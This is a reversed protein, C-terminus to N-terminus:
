SCYEVIKRSISEPSVSAAVAFAELEMVISAESVSREKYNKIITRIQGQSLAEMVFDKLSEKDFMPKLYNDSIRGAACDQVLHQAEHRLTNYDNSTWRVEPGGPRGNDQCIVLARSGSYYTGDNDGTCLKPHNILTAVGQRQITKWLRLHSNFTEAENAFTPTATLVAAIAATLISKIKM